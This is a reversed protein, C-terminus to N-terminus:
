SSQRQFHISIVSQEGDTLLLKLLRFDNHPELHRNKDAKGIDVIDDIQLVLVDEIVVTETASLVLFDQKICAINKVAFDHMNGNIFLKFLKERVDDPSNSCGKLSISLLKPWM